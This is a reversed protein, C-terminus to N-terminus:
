YKENKTEMQITGSSATSESIEKKEKQKALQLAIEKKIIATILARVRGPPPPIVGLSRAYEKLAPLSAEKLDSHRAIAYEKPTM